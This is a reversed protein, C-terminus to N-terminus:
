LRWLAVGGAFKMCTWAYEASVDPCNLKRGMPVQRFSRLAIRFVSRGPYTVASPGNAAMQNNAPSEGANRASPLSIWSMPPVRRDVLGPLLCRWGKRMSARCHRTGIKQSIPLRWGPQRRLWTPVIFSGGAEALDAQLLAYAHQVDKLFALVDADSGEAEEEPLAIEVVPQEREAELLAWENDTLRGAEELATRIAATESSADVTPIAREFTPRMVRIRYKSKQMHM